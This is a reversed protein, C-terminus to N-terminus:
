GNCVECDEDGCDCDDDCDKDREIPFIAIDAPDENVRLLELDLNCLISDLCNWVSKYYDRVKEQDEYILCDEEWFKFGEAYAGYGFDDRAKEPDLQIALSALKPILDEKRTTGQSIPYCGLTDVKCQIEDKVYGCDDDCATLGFMQAYEICDGITTLYLADRVRDYVLTSAYTDGANLYEFVCDNRGNDYAYGDDFVYEVDGYDSLVQFLDWPKDECDFLEQCLDNEQGQTLKLISVNNIIEQKNVKQM